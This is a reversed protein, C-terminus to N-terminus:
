RDEAGGSTLESSLALALQKPVQESTHGGAVPFSTPGSSSVAGCRGHGLTETCKRYVESM